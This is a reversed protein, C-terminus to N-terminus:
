LEDDDVNQYHGESNGNGSEDPDGDYMDHLQLPMKERHRTICAPKDKYQHVVREFAHLLFSSPDIPKVCHSVHM